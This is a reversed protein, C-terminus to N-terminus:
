AAAGDNSLDLAINVEISKPANYPTVSLYIEVSYKTPWVIQIDSDKPPEIDGPLIAGAFFVTHSMERLPRMFYTRNAEISALTSNLKRDAVRAVALLYISRAAKDVIRLNEIVRYDSTATALTLGDSVYMGDYDEYWQPVTFRGVNHIDQLVAKGLPVGDMDVPREAYNGILSGTAVRMPSDAVSTNQRSLRGALAGQFDPYLLAAAMVREAAVNDTIAKVETQYDVWTQAARDIAAVQTLIFVRRQYANMINIATAQYDELESATTVPVCVVVGEVSVENLAAMIATNIERTLVLPLAYAYWNQGGNDRAAGIQTKIESQATGLLADLDSDMGVAHITNQNDGAEAYGIFLFLREVETPTGQSLDPNNVSVNGLAM